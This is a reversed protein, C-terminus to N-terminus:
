VFITRRVGISYLQWWTARSTNRYKDATMAQSPHKKKKEWRCNLTIKKKEKGGGRGMRATNNDATAM